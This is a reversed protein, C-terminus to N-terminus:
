RRITGAPKPAAAPLWSATSSLHTANSSEKVRVKPETPLFFQEPFHALPNGMPSRIAPSFPVVRAGSYTERM